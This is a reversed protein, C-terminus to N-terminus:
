RNLIRSITAVVTDFVKSLNFRRRKAVKKGKSNGFSTQNYRKLLFGNILAIIKRM